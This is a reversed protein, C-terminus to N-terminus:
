KGETERMGKNELMEIEKLDNGFFIAVLRMGM